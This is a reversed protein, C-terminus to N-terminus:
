SHTADGHLEKVIDCQHSTMEACDYRRNVKQQAPSQAASKTQKATASLMLRNVVLQPYLIANTMKRKNKKSIQGIPFQAHQSLELRSWESRRWNRWKGHSLFLRASRSVCDATLWLASTANQAPTAAPSEDVSNKQGTMRRRNWASSLFVVCSLWSCICRQSVATCKM